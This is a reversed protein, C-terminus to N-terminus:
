GCVFAELRSRYTELSPTTLDTVKAADDYRRLWIAAFAYPHSVFQEAEKATMVGGQLLLSRQSAESLSDFYNPQRWGWYRKAAVHLRVPEVVETIFLNALADAGLEEHRADVGLEAIDEGLDHLLHGYDHLLCAAVIHAPEGAREAFMACQLAHQLETVEEGYQRHGRTEYLAFVQNIIQSATM